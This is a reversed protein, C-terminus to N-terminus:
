PTDSLKVPKYLPRRGYQYDSIAALVRDTNLQIDGVVGSDRRFPQTVEISQGDVDVILHTPYGFIHTDYM